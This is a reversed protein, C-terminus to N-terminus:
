GRKKKSTIYRNDLYFKLSIVTGPFYQNMKIVNKSNAPLYIDNKDNFAIIQKEGTGFIIDDNFEVSKMKYNDTFIIQTSGSVISMQPKLGNQSKGIDYFMEIMSVTGSGRGEYGDINKDRLRSIGEQLALVTYIMEEDWQSGVYKKQIDIIHVLKQKTEESTSNNKLGEYISEGLNLFLLQMEGYSHDEEIQYHGQTYWTSLDGGHIECNSIVEGLIRGLLRKGEDNLEMNQRKLCKNFYLTLKTATEDAKNASLSHIGKITEFREVYDEDFNISSLAKLHYPLGSALLIDRAKKDHPLNGSFNLPRGSKNRFKEVSLVIIDMITSASLGLNVCRSHDFIIEKIKSNKCCTYTQRLLKIAAEANDSISFTEPIDIRQCSVPGFFQKRLAFKRSDLHRIVLNYDSGLFNDGILINKNNGYARRKVRRKVNRFLKRQNRFSYQLVRQKGKRKRMRLNGWYKIITAYRRYIKLDFCVVSFNSKIGWSYLVM